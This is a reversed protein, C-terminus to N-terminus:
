RGRSVVPDSIWTATAPDFKNGYTPGGITRNYKDVATTTGDPQVVARNGQADTVISIPQGNTQGPVTLVEVATGDSRTYTTVPAGLVGRRFEAASIEGNSHWM